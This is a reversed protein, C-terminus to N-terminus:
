EFSGAPFDIPVRVTEDGVVDVLGLNASKTLARGRENVLHARGSYGDPAVGPVVISFAACPQVFQGLLDGSSTYLELELMTADHAACDGANTRGVIRWDVRVQGPHVPPPDLPGSACATVVSLALLVAISRKM